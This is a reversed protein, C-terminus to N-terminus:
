SFVGEVVGGCFPCRNGEMKNEKLSLASRRILTEGCHSCATTSEEGPVNGIYIFRLGEEKGVSQAQRLTELPTSGYESFEYDPHFRSIHWPISSDVSAIFRAINRLEEESDNQGPVVLTTTEVWIGMEKMLRISDLVQGLRAKCIKRYFEDRYSKLDVNCADLYPQITKLADPTMYGNTVFINKIGEGKAVKATDYAYEFFITPETYTYSISLCGSEIAGNVIQESGLKQGGFAGPPIKSVQSIQWNQCFGCQFNCGPTAVSFSQSGPLFHYLPKKEVPDIHAAIVEGYVHTHLKGGINQRVRCLGFHDAGIKCHHACLFCQVKSDDLVEYFMAERIMGM